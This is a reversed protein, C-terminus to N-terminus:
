RRGVLERVAGELGDITLEFMPFIDRIMRITTRDWINQKEPNLWVIHDFHERFQLLREIGTTECVDDYDIAGYRNLLESPAMWADGVIIVRYERGFRRLLEDTKFRERRAIDTYVHDYICNHFYFYKFDKFHGSSNAASFLRSSLLAYPNMSGGVDMLLLLKIINKRGKSFVLDIEGANKCTKDITADLDLEEEPGSRSLLRLRKLAVKIQRVDLTLDNRLNRYKRQHAVKLASRRGGVGGVRIGAPNIGANGFPSRGGTGIWRDGGDHRERQEALRELFLEILEELEMESLRRVEEESLSMRNIPDNLWKLLEDRIEPFEECVSSLKKQMMGEDNLGGFYEEFSLDYHDYYSESKVLISRALYYFTEISSDALGKSLAETLAMWETISVPVGNKRLIYFFDIFM